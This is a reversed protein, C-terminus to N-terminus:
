VVFGRDEAVVTDLEGLVHLYKFGGSKVEEETDSTINM